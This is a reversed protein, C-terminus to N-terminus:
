IIFTDDPELRGEDISDDVNWGVFSRGEESYTVLYICNPSIEISTIPKGNHPKDYITDTTDVISFRGKVISRIRRLKRPSSPTIHDVINGEDNKVDITVESM